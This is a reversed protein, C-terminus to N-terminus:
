RARLVRRQKRGLKPRRSRRIGAVALACPVCRATGTDDAYVLCSGCYGMRCEQCTAEAIEWTHRHCSTTM